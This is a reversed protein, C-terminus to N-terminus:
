LEELGFREIAAALGIGNALGQLLIGLGDPLHVAQHLCHLDHVVLGAESDNIAGTPQDSLHEQEMPEHEKAGDLAEPKKKHKTRRPVKPEHLQGEQAM